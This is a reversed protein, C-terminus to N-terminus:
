LKFDNLDNDNLDKGDFYARPKLHHIIAVINTPFTKILINIKSTYRNYFAKAAELHEESLRIEKEVEKINKDDEAEKLDNKIQSYLNLGETIKRDIDFNSIKKNKLELYENFKKNKIKYDEELISIIKILIDFRERLKEDIISEAEDIRIKCRQIKNFSVIYIISILSVFIISILLIYFLSNM